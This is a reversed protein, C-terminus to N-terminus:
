CPSATNPAPVLGRLLLSSPRGTLPFVPAWHASSPFSCLIAQHSLMKSSKEMVGVRNSFNNWHGVAGWAGATARRYCAVQALKIYPRLKYRGDWGAWAGTSLLMSSSEAQLRLVSVGPLGGLVLPTLPHGKWALGWSKWIDAWLWLM